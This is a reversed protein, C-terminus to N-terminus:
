LAKVIIDSGSYTGTDLEYWHRMIPLRVGQYNVEGDFLLREGEAKDPHFIVVGLM